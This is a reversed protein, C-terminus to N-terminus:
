HKNLQTSSVNLVKTSCHAKSYCAFMCMEFLCVGLLAFNMYHSPANKPWPTPYYISVAMLLQGHHRRELPGEVIEASKPRLWATIAPAHGFFSSEALVNCLERRQQQWWRSSGDDARARPPVKANSQRNTWGSLTTTTSDGNYKATKTKNCHPIM